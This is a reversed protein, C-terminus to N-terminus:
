ALLGDIVRGPSLPIPPGRRNQIHQDPPIGPCHFMTAGLDWPGVPYLTPYSAHRSSAGFGHRAQHRGPSCSRTATPGPTAGADKNIWPNPWSASVSSWPRRSCAANNSTSLFTSLGRDFPPLM